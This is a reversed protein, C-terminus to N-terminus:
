KVKMNHIIPLLHNIQRQNLDWHPSLFSTIQTM